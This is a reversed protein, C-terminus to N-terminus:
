GEGDVKGWVKDWGYLLEGVREELAKKGGMDGECFTPISFVALVQHPPAMIWFIRHSTLAHSLERTNLYVNM